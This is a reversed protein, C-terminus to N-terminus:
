GPPRTSTSRAYKVPLLGSSVSVDVDDLKIDDEDTTAMRHKVAMHKGAKHNATMPMDAQDNDATADDVEYTDVMSVRTDFPIFWEDRDGKDVDIAYLEADAVAANIRTVAADVQTQAWDTQGNFLAIRADNIDLMSLRADDSVKLLDQQTQTDEVTGTDDKNAAMVSAMGVVILGSALATTVATTLIRKKIM